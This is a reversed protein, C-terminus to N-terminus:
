HVWMYNGSCFICLTRPVCQSTHLYYLFTFTCVSCQEAQLTDQTNECALRNKHYDSTEEWERPHLCKLHIVLWIKMWLWINTAYFACWAELSKDSVYKVKMWMVSSVCSRHHEKGLLFYLWVSSDRWPASWDMAYVYMGWAHKCHVTNLQCMWVRGLLLGWMIRSNVPGCYLYVYQLYVCHICM